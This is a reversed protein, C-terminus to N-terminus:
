FIGGLSRPAPSLPSFVSLSPPPQQVPRPEPPTEPPAKAQARFSPSFTAWFDEAVYRVPTRGFFLGTWTLKNEKSSWARFGWFDPLVFKEIMQLVQPPFFPSPPINSCVSSPPSPFVPPPFFFDYFGYQRRSLNSTWEDQLPLFSTSTSNLPPSPSFTFLRLCPYFRAPASQRFDFIPGHDLFSLL